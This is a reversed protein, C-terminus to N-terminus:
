PQPPDPPEPPPPPLEEAPPEAPADGNAPVEGERLKAERIMDLEVHVSMTDDICALHAIGGRFWDLLPMHFDQPLETLVFQNPGEVATSVWRSLGEAPEILVYEGGLPCVFQGDVLDEALERCQDIPVGLQVALSNMFRSGAASAQRARSYGFQSIVNGVGGHSIDGISVRVQAPHPDDVISLQPGVEALVDRKMSFVFFDNGPRVWIPLWGETHILGDRDTPGRIPGVFREILHPRPWIGVYGSIAETWGGLLSLGGQKVQFPNQSDRIAGFAHIPQPDGLLGGLVVQGAVVDGPVPPVYANTAPGLKESWSV